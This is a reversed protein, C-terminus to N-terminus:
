ANGGSLALGTRQHQDLKTGPDFKRGEYYGQAAYNSRWDNVPIKVYTSPKGLDSTAAKVPQPIALVLGWEQHEADQEDYAAKLGSQFGVGYANCVERISRADWGQRKKERRLADCRDKVCSYAYLIIRKCLAFDEELGVLYMTVHKARAEHRRFAICCYHKAITSCLPPLWADTMKTCTLGICERIVKINEGKQVEEPRLKHEAMLERAKLLAAQAESESPNNGALTLLKAIRDKIDM